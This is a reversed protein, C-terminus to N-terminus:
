KDRMTGDSDKHGDIRFWNVNWETVNGTGRPIFKLQVPTGNLPVGDVFRGPVWEKGGKRKVADPCDHYRTGTPFLPINHSAPDESNIAYIVLHNEHLVKVVMGLHHIDKGNDVMNAM